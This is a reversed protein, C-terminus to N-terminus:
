IRATLPRTLPLSELEGEGSTTFNIEWEGGVVPYSQENLINLNSGSAFLSILFMFVALLKSDMNKFSM